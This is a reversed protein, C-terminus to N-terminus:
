AGNFAIRFCSALKSGINIVVMPIEAGNLFTGEGDVRFFDFNGPFASRHDDARQEPLDPWFLGALAERRHPQDMEVVLYSLLARAKDSEFGKLLQGNKMGWFSGFLILDLNSISGGRGSPKM